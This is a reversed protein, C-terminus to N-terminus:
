SCTTFVLRATVSTISNAEVDYRFNRALLLGSRLPRLGFVGKPSLYIQAIFVMLLSQTQACQCAKYSVSIVFSNCKEM